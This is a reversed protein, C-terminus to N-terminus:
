EGVISKRAKGAREAALVREKEAEDAQSLYASVEDVTHRSPDFDAAPAAEEAPKEQEVPELTETDSVPQGSRYADDDVDYGQERAHEVLPDPAAPDLRQAQEEPTLVESVNLTGEPFPNPPLVAGAAEAQEKAEAASQEVRERTEDDMGDTDVGALDAARAAAFVGTVKEVSEHEGGYIGTTDLTGSVATPDPVHDDNERYAM